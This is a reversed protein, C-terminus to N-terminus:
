QDNPWVLPADGETEVVLQEVVDDTSVYTFAQPLIGRLWYCPFIHANSSAEQALSQTNVVAPDTIANNAECQWFMHLPTEDERNCRPCLSPADVYHEGLRSNPWCAGCIVTELAALVQYNYSIDNDEDEDVGEGSAARHNKRNIQKRCARVEQLTGQFDM